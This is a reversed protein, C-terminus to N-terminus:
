SGRILDAIETAGNQEAISAAQEKTEQAIITALAFSNGKWRGFDNVIELIQKAQM